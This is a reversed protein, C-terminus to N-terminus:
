ENNKNTMSHKQYKKKNGTVTLLIDTQYDGKSWYKKNGGSLLYKWDRINHPWLGRAPSVTEVGGTALDPGMMWWGGTIDNVTIVCDDDDCFISVMTFCNRLEMMDPGSLNTTILREQSVTSEWRRM